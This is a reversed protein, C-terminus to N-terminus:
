SAKGEHEALWHELAKEFVWTRSIMRTACEADIRQMIEEPMRVTVYKRPAEGDGNRPRYTTRNKM